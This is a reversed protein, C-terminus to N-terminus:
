VADQGKVRDVLDELAEIVSHTLICTDCTGVDLM